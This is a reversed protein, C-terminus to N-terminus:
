GTLLPQIIEWGKVTGVIATVYLVTRGLWCILIFKWLTFRLAGAALGALDFFLPVLTFIFITLGGWRRVWAVTKYYLSRRELLGRGSFGAAYGVTEGLAAGAGGAVGLLVLGATGEAPYMVLGLGTIVPLVIGPLLVTANGIVSVFFAGPYSFRSLSAMLVPDSGCRYLSLSIAVVLTITVLPLVWRRFRSKPPNNHGTDIDEM